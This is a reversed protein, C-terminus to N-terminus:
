YDIKAIEALMFEDTFTTYHKGLIDGLVHGMWMKVVDRKVGCEQCRSSFTKRCDKLTHNPLIRRFENRIYDLKPPTLDQLIFPLLKKSIPIKKYHVKHDKQKINECVVFNGDIKASYIEGPRIGCYLYVAFIVRYKPKCTTLLLTEEDKTLPLGSIKEHLVHPIVALPNRQILNYAIAMKFTQNLLSHVEDATKGKGQAKIEDLLTKCDAPTVKRVDKGTFHPEIWRHFISLTNYYTTEVVKEKRYTEFFHTAFQNFNTPVDTTVNDEGVAQALKAVFKQKCEELTTAVASINYGNKRYRIEFSWSNPGNRKKRVHAVCGNTRFEKRFQKPMSCIEKETFLGAEVIDQQLMQETATRARDQKFQEGKLAGLVQCIALQVQANQTKIQELAQIYYKIDM